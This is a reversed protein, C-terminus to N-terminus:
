VTVLTQMPVQLLSSIIPVLTGSVHEATYLRCLLLIKYQNHMQNPTKNLLQLHVSGCVMFQIARQMPVHGVVQYKQLVIFKYM